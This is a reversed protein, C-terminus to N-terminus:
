SWGLLSMWLLFISNWQHFSFSWKFWKLLIYSWIIKNRKNRFYLIKHSIFSRIYMCLLKISGFNSRHTVAVTRFSNISCTSSENIIVSPSMKHFRMSFYVQNIYVNMQNKPLNKQKPIVQFATSFRCKQYYSFWSYFLICYDFM